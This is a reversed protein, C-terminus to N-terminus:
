KRSPDCNIRAVNNHMKIKDDGGAPRKKQMRIYQVNEPTEIVTYRNEPTELINEPTERQIIQLTLLQLNQSYLIPM